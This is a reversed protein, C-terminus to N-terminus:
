SEIKEIILDAFASLKNYRLVVPLIYSLVRTLDKLYGSKQDRYHLRAFIGLIKLHRQLGMWEFDRWLEPFEAPVALGLKRAEEWWRILGDIQIEEDWAIYADRWLSVLDYTIPGYVADQFDLVGPNRDGRLLMLNRSHFDRHVFVRAQSLCHEIIDDFAQGVVAAQTKSLTKGKHREVYWTPWLELEQRLLKGDYPRLVGDRSATQIRLLSEWADRYLGRAVQPRESDASFNELADLYTHQGFDELLLFGGEINQALVQPTSMGAQAFLRAVELFPRVDEAPAPADMVVVTGPSRECDLRFYRRFSADHSALRLTDPLLGLTPSQAGLWQRLADLRQDVPFSSTSSAHSSFSM